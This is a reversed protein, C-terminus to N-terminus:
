SGIPQRSKYLVTIDLWKYARYTYAGIEDNALSGEGISINTCGYEKLLQITHEIVRTTTIMGWKPIKNSGADTCVLNPKLLVRDDKKLRDFGNSLEISKRFSDLTDDYKVISVTSKNMAKKNRLTAIIM